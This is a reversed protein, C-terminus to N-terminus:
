KSYVRIINNNRICILKDNNDIQLLYLLDIKTQLEIINNRSLTADDRTLNFGYQQLYGKDKYNSGILIKLPENIIVMDVNTKEINITKIIQEKAISILFIHENGLGALTDNNVGEIKKLKINNNILFSEKREFTESDFIIIDNNSSYISFKNKNIETIYIINSDINESKKKIYNNNFTPELIMLNNGYIYIINDNFLKKIQYKINLNNFNNNKNSNIMSNFSENRSNQLLNDNQFLDVVNKIKITKNKNLIIEENYKFTNIVNYQITNKTEFLEIIKLEKENSSIFYNNKITCLYKIEFGNSDSIKITKKLNNIHNDLNYCQIQGNKYGVALGNQIQCIATIKADAKEEIVRLTNLNDLKTVKARKDKKKFFFNTKLNDQYKFLGVLYGIRYFFQKNKIFDSILNNYSFNIRKLSEITQENMSLNDFKNIIYDNILLYMKLNSKLHEIKKELEEKFSDIEQLFENISKKQKEYEKKKNNIQEETLYKDVQDLYYIINHDSKKEKHEIQCNFCLNKNCNVCFYNFDLCDESCPCLFDKNSYKILNHEIDDDNEEKHKEECKTCLIKTCNCIYMDDKLQKNSKKCESCIIEEELKKNSNKIYSIFKEEINHRKPCYSKIIYNNYDLELIPMEGCTPCVIKEIKKTKEFQKFYNIDDNIDSVTANEKEDEVEINNKKNTNIILDNNSNNSINSIPDEDKEIM